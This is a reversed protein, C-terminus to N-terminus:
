KAVASSYRTILLSMRRRYFMFHMESKFDVISRGSGMTATISPVRIVCGDLTQNCM